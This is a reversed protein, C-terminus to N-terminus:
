GPYNIRILCLGGAFATPGALGPKKMEIISCFEELTMRGQGVRILAGITNRVQHPLFSDATIHFIVMEGKRAVEARHVTRVTSNINSGLQSAFSAFDHKGILRSGAQNMAEIDLDGPVLYSRDMLLPSRTTRNLILYRYERSRADRRPNFAEDVWQAQRVAIDSPLYHNLGTIFIAAELGSETSFTVVQGQAHVGSDTRSAAIVRIKEGTLRYLAKELKSQVTPARKQLQFGQYNTGRYELILLLKGAV